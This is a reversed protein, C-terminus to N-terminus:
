ASDSFRFSTRVPACQSNAVLARSSDNMEIPYVCFPDMLGGGLRELGLHVETPDMIELMMENRERRTRPKRRAKGVEAMALRRIRAQTEEDKLDDPHKLNVFRFKPKTSSNM